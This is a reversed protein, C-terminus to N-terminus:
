DIRQDTEDSKKPETGGGAMKFSEPRRQATKDKDKGLKGEAVKNV